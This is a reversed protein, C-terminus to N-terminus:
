LLATFEGPNVAAAYRCISSADAWAAMTSSLWVCSDHGEVGSSDYYYTWGGPCLPLQASVGAVAACVISALLVAAASEKRGAPATDTRQARSTSKVAASDSGDTCAARRGSCLATNTVSRPQFQVNSHADSHRRPPATSFAPVPVKLLSRLATPMTASPCQYHDYVSRTAARMAYKAFCFHPESVLQWPSLVIM